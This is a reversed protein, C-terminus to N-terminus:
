TVYLQEYRNEELWAKFEEEAGEHAENEIEEYVGPGLEEVLAARIRAQKLRLFKERQADALSRRRQMEMGDVGELKFLRRKTESAFGISIRRKKRTRHLWDRDCPIGCDTEMRLAEKIADDMGQIAMSLETHLRRCTELDLDHIQSIEVVRALERSQYTLTM